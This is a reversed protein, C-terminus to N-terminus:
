GAGIGVGLGTSTVLLGIKLSIRKRLLVMFGPSDACIRKTTVEFIPKEFEVPITVRVCEDPAFKPFIRPTNGAPHTAVEEVTTVHSPSIDKELVAGSPIYLKFM